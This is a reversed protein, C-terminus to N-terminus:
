AYCDESDFLHALAELAADERAAADETTAPADARTLYPLSQYLDPM